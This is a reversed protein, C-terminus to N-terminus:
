RFCQPFGIKDYNTQKRERKFNCFEIKMSKSDM